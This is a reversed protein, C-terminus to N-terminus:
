QGLRVETAQPYYLANFLVKFTGHTQARHQSRFGILIIRGKGYSAEVAAAKGAILKEGILWGSQLLDHKEYVIPAAIRNNLITPKVQLVVDSRNLILGKPPMGYALPHATDFRVRLTSGPCFFKTAPLGKVVNQVPVGLEAWSLASAHGLLVLGGGRRVFDGLSAIADNDLSKRYEPPLFIKPYEKEESERGEGAKPQKNGKLVDLSDNPILFVDLNDLAGSHIDDVTVRRYPFEWRDFLLRTWGEDMNGGRYRRYMGLRLPRLKLANGAVPSKVARFPLGFERALAAIEAASTKGAPIWVAGPAYREGGREVTERLWYVDAGAALLRNVVRFSDNYAHSLLWGATGEGTVKGSSRPAQELLHKAVPLRHNVPTAEVGMQESLVFAALDYPGIVGGDARRTIANDPYRATELLSRVLAGNPQAASIIFDGAHWARGEAVFDEDARGVEIGNEMLTGILKEVTSPDHQNARIVYGWPAEKGARAITRRAKMVMDRLLTERNRAATSLLAYTSVEQQHVIDRLRWWGGPWPHPFGQMPGYISHTRGPARLQQPLIHIPWALRASASETLMGAINHHNTVMHFSPFWWGTFPSGAVVGTVGARELAIQMNAGVLEHEMWILPDVNPNIPDHYPPVYLRASYSGMQHIDLYLQPVWEKYVVKAFMRSEKLNLAYADRNNDHGAYPHYLDPYWSGEYKTGKTKKVWEVVMQEGDPNFCPFLLFVTEDLIRLTEEDTATALRYALRPTMQTGGVETAHLSATVAVVSRGEEVLRNLEKDTLGRPDALRRSIEALRGARALNKASSITVLLFPKDLTTPGLNRVEVRGSAAALKNFYDVLAPWSALRGDAGPEFGFQEHPTPVGATFAIASMSLTIATLVFVPFWFRRRRM